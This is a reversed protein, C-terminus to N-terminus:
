GTLEYERQFRQVITAVWRECDVHDSGSPVATATWGYNLDPRIVIEINRPCVPHGVAEALLLARLEDASKGVKAM